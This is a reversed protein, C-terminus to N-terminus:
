APNINQNLRFLNAPDFTRKLAKLRDYRETGYAQRIRADGEEMLFNVYVGVQHPALAAWLDRTWTRAQDFGDASDTAGTINFMHGSARSGFATDAAGVRAIAGGLQWITVTSRLSEIRSAHDLTVDLVADDLEAVDCARLYAWLGPPYGPDLMSQHEVFPRPAWLDLAPSGLNRMPELLREGNEIIGSWCGAIGIVFRGRLATPVFDLAPARRLVLATTLEDPADRCWDRYARAVRAGQELPWYILGALVIPGVRHLRFEFETVIGFNGGGGRVGWFLGANETESARVVEGGATVVQVSLLQDITLGHKRMLWGIGGGLTLGALGTHTVAGVPVALGHAQTAQDLEGLLVGAGARVTGAELDLRIEHMPRLDIVIGGDCVSLGPFSHGGGRVAVPLGAERAFAVAAVVDAVGTCRAILAPYRDISGNWVRRREDYAADGARILDGRFRRRLHDFASRDLTPRAFEPVSPHEPTIDVTM